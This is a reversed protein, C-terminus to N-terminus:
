NREVREVCLNAPDFFNITCSFFTLFSSYNDSLYDLYILIALEEFIAFTMMINYVCHDIFRFNTYFLVTTPIHLLLQFPDSV